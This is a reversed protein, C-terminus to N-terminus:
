MRTKRTNQQPKGVLIKCTNRMEKMRETHGAWRMRRSKIMRIINPSAHFNHLVDNNPRRRGAAVKERRTGFTVRLVRNELM